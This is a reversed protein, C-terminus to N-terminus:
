FTIKLSKDVADLAEFLEHGQSEDSTANIQLVYLGDPGKFVVTEQGFAPFIVGSWDGDTQCVWVDGEVQAKVPGADSNSWRVALAGSRAHATAPCAAAQRGGQGVLVPRSAVPQIQGDAQQGQFAADTRALAAEDPKGCAALPLTLASLALAAFAAPSLRTM